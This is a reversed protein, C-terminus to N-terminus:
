RRRLGRRKKTYRRQRKRTGRRKTNRRRRIPRKKTSRTRRRRSKRRGGFAHEDDYHSLLGSEEDDSDLGGIVQRTFWKNIATQARAFLSPSQRPSQREIQPDLEVAVAQDVRVPAARGSQLISITGTVATNNSKVSADDVNVLPTMKVNFDQGNLTITGTVAETSNTDIKSAIKDLQSEIASQQQELSAGQNTQGPIRSMVNPTAAPSMFPTGNRSAFPSMTLGSVDSGQSGGMDVEEPIGGEEGTPLAQYVNGEFVKVLELIEEKNSSNLTDTLKKDAEDIARKQQDETVKNSMNQALTKDAEGVVAGASLNAFDAMVNAAQSPPLQVVSSLGNLLGKQESTIAKTASATSIKSGKSLITALTGRTQDSIDSRITVGTSSYGSESSTVSYNSGFIYGAANCLQTFNSSISTVLSNNRTVQVWSWTKDAANQVALVLNDSTFLGKMKEMFISWRDVVSPNARIFVVIGMASVAFAGVTVYAPALIFLGSYIGYTWQAMRVLLDFPIKILWTPIYWWIDRTTATRAAVFVCQLRPDIGLVPCFQESIVVLATSTAGRIGNDLIQAVQEVSAGANVLNSVLKLTMVVPAQTAALTAVQGVTRLQAKFRQILINRAEEQLEARKQRQNESVAADMGQYIKRQAETFIKDVQEPTIGRSIAQERIDIALWQNMKEISNTIQIIQGEKKAKAMRILDAINDDRIEKLSNIENLIIFGNVPPTKRSNYAITDKIEVEIKTLEDYLLNYQPTDKMDNSLSFIQNSVTVLRAILERKRLLRIANEDLGQSQPPASTTFSNNLADYVKPPLKKPDLPQLNAQPNIQSKDLNSNAVLQALTQTNTNSSSGGGGGAASSSPPPRTRQNYIIDNIKKTIEARDNPYANLEDKSQWGTSSNEVLVAFKTLLDQDSWTRWDKNEPTTDMNFSYISNKSLLNFIYLFM